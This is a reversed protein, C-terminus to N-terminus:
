KNNQKEHKEEIIKTVPLNQTNEFSSYFSSPRVLITINYNNPNITIENM